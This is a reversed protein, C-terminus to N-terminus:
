IIKYQAIFLHGIEFALLKFNPQYEHASGEGFTIVEAFTRKYRHFVGLYNSHLPRCGWSNNFSSNSTVGTEM